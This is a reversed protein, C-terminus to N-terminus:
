NIALQLAEPEPEVLVATTLFVMGLWIFHAGLLHVLQLWLPALLVANLAGMGFQVVYLWFVASLLKNVRPNAFRKGFWNELYYIFGGVVLAIVPHWIRLRVLYHVNRAFDKQVGEFFSESPFITTALSAITGFCSVVVIGLLAMGLLGMGKDRWSFVAPLPTVSLWATLGIAGMLLFTNVLHIPQVFARALSENTDVWQFLVLAAGLLSEVVMFVVSYVAARRTMDSKAFLRRSWAWLGIVSLLAVGSTMRHFFEIFTALSRTETQVLQECLPWSTGCGDGSGSASVLGGWVIVFINLAVVAWAYQTFKKRNKM